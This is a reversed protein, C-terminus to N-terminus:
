NLKKLQYIREWEPDPQLVVKIYLFDENVLVDDFDANIEEPELRYMGGSIADIAMGILGGFICNGIFWNSTERNVTIIKPEYNELELKIIHNEKRSLQVKMPTSGVESGDVFIKADLPNSVINVSQNTGNFITGCGWFFIFSIIFLNLSITKM